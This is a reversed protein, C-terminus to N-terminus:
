SVSKGESVKQAYDMLTNVWTSEIRYSTKGNNKMITRRSSKKDRYFELTQKEGTKTHLTVTLYKQNEEPEEFCIEASPCSVMYQYMTKFNDVDIDKGALTVSKTDGNDEGSGTSEIKFDFNKEGDFTIKDMDALFRAIIIDSKIDDAKLNVWPLSSLPIKYICDTGSVGEATCYYGYIEKEGVSSNDSEAGYVPNGVNLTYDYDDGKFNVTCLPKDLGYEALTKKDPKVAECGSSTLGWMGHTVSTSVNVDLYAFVPSTMVQSSAMASNGTPDDEFTIDYKLNSRSVTLKGYKANEDQTPFIVNSVFDRCDNTYYALVSLEGMYVKNEDKLKFYRSKGDVSEDGVLVVTKKGDSYEVTFQAAPKELGYKKLNGPNKEVVKEAVLNATNSLMNKVLTENQNVGALKDITINAKGSLPNDLTFGGSSNEVKISRIDETKRDLVTLTEEEEEHHHSSEEEESHGSVSSNGGKNEGQKNLFLMTGGLCAAVVGCAIIGQLKSNM